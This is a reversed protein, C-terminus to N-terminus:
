FSDFNTRKTYAIATNSSNPIAISLNPPSDHRSSKQVFLDFFRAASLVSPFRGDLVACVLAELSVGRKSFM